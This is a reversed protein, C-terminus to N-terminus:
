VRAALLRMKPSVLYEREEESGVLGDPIEIVGEFDEVPVLGSAATQAPVLSLSELLRRLHEADQAKQKNLKNTAKRQTFDQLSDRSKRSSTLNAMSLPPSPTRSQVCSRPTAFPITQNTDALNIYSQGAPRKSMRARQTKVLGLVATASPWSRKEKGPVLRAQALSSTIPDFSASM